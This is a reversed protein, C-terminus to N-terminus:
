SYSEKANLNQEEAILMPMIVDMAQNLIEQMQNLLTKEVYSKEFGEALEIKNGNQCACNGWIDVKYWEAKLNEPEKVYSQVLDRHFCWLSRDVVITLGLVKRELWEMMKYIPACSSSMDAPDFSTELAYRFVVGRKKAENLLSPFVKLVTDTKEEEIKYRVLRATTNQYTYRLINYESEGNFSLRKYSEVVGLWDPNQELFHMHAAKVQEQLKAAGVTKSFEFVFELWYGRNYVSYLRTLDFLDSWPILANYSNMRATFTKLQQNIRPAITTLKEFINVGLKAIEVAEALMGAFIEPTFEKLKKGQMSTLQSELTARRVRYEGAREFDDPVAQEIQQNQKQQVKTDCARDIESSAQIVSTMLISLLFVTIKNNM